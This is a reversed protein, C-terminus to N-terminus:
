NRRKKYLQINYTHTSTRSIKKKKKCLDIIKQYVIKEEDIKVIEEGM